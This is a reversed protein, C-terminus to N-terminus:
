TNFYCIVRNKDCRVCIKLTLFQSHDFDENFRRIGKPLAFRFGYISQDDDGAAYVEMGRDKLAFVIGMDCRNLDQYEDVLLHLYDSELSFNDTQELSRKLQYVLEERLTYGYIKRHQHWAGLFIPDPFREEWKEKEADLTQWDASLQNFKQSIIKVPMRFIKVPHDSKLVPLNYGSLCVDTKKPPVSINQLDM